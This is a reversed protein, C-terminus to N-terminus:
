HCLSKARTRYAELASEEDAAWGSWLAYSTQFDAPIEFAVPPPFINDFTSARPNTVSLVQFHRLGSM